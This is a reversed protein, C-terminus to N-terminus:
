RISVRSIESRQGDDDGGGGDAVVAAATAAFVYTKPFIQGNCM